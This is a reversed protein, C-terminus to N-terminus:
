NKAINCAIRDRIQIRKDSKTKGVSCCDTRSCLCSLRSAQTYALGKSFVRCVLNLLFKLNFELALFMFLFSKM